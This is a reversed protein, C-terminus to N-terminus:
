REDPKRPVEDILELRMLGRYYRPTSRGIKWFLVGDARGYVALRGEHLERHHFVCLTTRNSLANSGGRSRWELHHDHLLGRASCGPVMCRHNDREFVPDIRHAPDVMTWDAIVLRYLIVMAESREPPRDALQMCIQIKTLTDLLEAKTSAKLARTVRRTRRSLQAVLPAPIEARWIRAGLLELITELRRLLVAHEWPDMSGHHLEEPDITDLRRRRMARRIDASSVGYKKRALRLLGAMLPRYALTGKVALFLRPAVSHVLLMIRICREFGSTSATRARRIWEDQYMPPLANILSIQGCTIWGRDLAEKIKPRNDYVYGHHDLMEASRRSIGLSAAVADHFAGSTTFWVPAMRAFIRVIRAKLIRFQQERHLLYRLSEEAEAVTRPKTGIRVDMGAVQDTVIGLSIRARDIDGETVLIPPLPKPAPKEANSVQEDQQRQPGKERGAREVARILRATEADIIGANMLIVEPHPFGAMEDLITRVFEEYSLDRGQVREALDKVMAEIARLKPTMEYSFAEVEEELEVGPKEDKIRKRLESSTMTIARGIWLTREEPDHVADLVRGVDMVSRNAVKGERYARDLIENKQLVERVNMREWATKGNIRLQEKVYDKFTRLGGDLYRDNERLWALNEAIALTIAPELRRFSALAGEIRARM